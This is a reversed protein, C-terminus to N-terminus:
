KVVQLTKNQNLKENALAEVEVENIEKAKIDATGKHVVSETKMAKKNATAIQSSNTELTFGNPKWNVRLVVFGNVAYVQSKFRDDRKSTTAVSQVFIKKEIVDKPDYGNRKLESRLANNVVNLACHVFDIAQQEITILNAYNQEARKFNAKAFLPKWGFHAFISNIIRKM